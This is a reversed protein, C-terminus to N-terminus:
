GGKSPTTASGAPAPAPAATVAPVPAPAAVPAPSPAVGAPVPAVGAPSPAAGAKVAALAAKKAARTARAKAASAAKSAAPVVRLKVPTFGFQVLKPSSAGGWQSELWQRLATLMPHLGARAAQEAAVATRWLDHQKQTATAADIVAQLGNLIDGRKYTQGDFTWTQTAPYNATIGEQCTTLQAAVDVKKTSSM